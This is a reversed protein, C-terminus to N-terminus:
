TVLKWEDPALSSDSVIQIDGFEGSYLRMAGPHPSHVPVVGEDLTRIVADPPYILRFPEKGAMWVDELAAVLDQEAFPTIRRTGWDSEYVDISDTLSQRPVVLPAVRMINEAKVIAPACFLASTGQLFQRRDM